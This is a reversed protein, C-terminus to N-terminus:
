FPTQHIVPRVTIGIVDGPHHRVHALPPSGNSSATIGLLRVAETHKRCCPRWSCRRRRGPAMSEKMQAFAYAAATFCLGSAILVCLLVSLSGLRM